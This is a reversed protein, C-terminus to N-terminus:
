NGIRVALFRYRADWDGDFHYLDVDRRSGNRGLGGVHRRGHLKIIQGLAVVPFELQVEPNKEGFALKERMTAPRYVEAMMSAIANESSINRNFHFMAFEVEIEGFEPSLFNKDNIDKNVEDYKGAKLSDYITRRYDVSQKYTATIYSVAVATKEVMEDRLFKKLGTAWKAGDNGLLKVMLDYISGLIEPTKEALDALKTLVNALMNKTSM